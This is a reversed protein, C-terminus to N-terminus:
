INSLSASIGIHLTEISKILFVASIRFYKLKLVM